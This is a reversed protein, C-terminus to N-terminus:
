LPFQVEFRAGSRNTVRIEGHYADVVSKVISLGIGHKGGTGRYFREFIHPLDDPSVGPGDDHVSVVVGDRGSHCSLAIENGAYRIANSILNGFLQHADGDRIPFMVPDADFDFAFSLGRGQAEARQESVCLSLIDRLDIPAYEGEPVGKGMRSLYLIDEVLGSLRDTESLIVQGAAQPEMVGFLIGEANGRISTLPTKLEHSVNQFFTEQKRNAQDLAQAMRNMSDALQNFEADPFHLERKQFNGGGIEGAFESLKQVPAAFSRAFRRSLLVSLLIAALIIVLLLTNVRATFATISTVDVYFVFFSDEQVPDRLVSVMYDGSDLSVVKKQIKESLTHSSFYDSLEQCVEREGRMVSLLTGDARMAIANGSTGIIRDAHDDFPRAGGRQGKMGGRRDASVEVSISDLQASVRSRIYSRVSLNFVLAVALLLVTVFLTLTLALRTRIHWERQKM